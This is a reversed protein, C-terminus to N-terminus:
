AGLVRHQKRLVEKRSIVNALGVMGTRFWDFGADSTLVRRAISQWSYFAQKAEFCKQAFDDPSMQRPVFIPDGYRYRPDVWWQPYLLRGEQKLREYLPSGPTPTLPNFNAIELKAEQAFDLSSQITQATDADYGFV